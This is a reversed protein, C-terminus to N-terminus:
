SYGCRIDAHLFLFFIIPFDKRIQLQTILGCLELYPLLQTKLKTYQKPIKTDFCINQTSM